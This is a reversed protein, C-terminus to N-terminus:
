RGKFFRINKGSRYRQCISRSHARRQDATKWPFPQQVRNDPFIGLFHNSFEITQSFKRGYHPLVAISSKGEEFSIPHTIEIIKRPASQISLGAKLVIKAIEASSGDLAPIEPGDVDIFVNDIEFASLVAMLHEITKVRTGNYGITTAFSTDVVAFPSLKIMNGRDVRFFIIGTNSKAPRLTVKCMKGTHLGVGEFTIENKITKQHKM